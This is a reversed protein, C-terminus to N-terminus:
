QYVEVTGSSGTNATIRVNTANYDVSFDDLAKFQALRVFRPAVPLNKDDKLGHPYDVTAGTGTFTITVDPGTSLDVRNRLQDIRYSWVVADAPRKGGAWLDGAEQEVTIYKKTGFIVGLFDKEKM